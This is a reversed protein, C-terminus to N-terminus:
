VKKVNRGNDKTRARYGNECNVRWDMVGVCLSNVTNIKLIAAHEAGCTMDLVGISAPM